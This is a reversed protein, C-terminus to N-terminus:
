EVEGIVQEEDKIPILITSEDNINLSLEYLESRIDQHQNLYSIVAVWQRQDVVVHGIGIQHKIEYIPHRHLFMASNDM